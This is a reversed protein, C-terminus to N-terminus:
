ETQANFNERKGRYICLNPTKLTRVEIRFFEVKLEVEKVDGLDM